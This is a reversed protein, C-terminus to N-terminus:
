CPNKKVIRDGNQWRPTCSNNTKHEVIDVIYLQKAGAAQEECSPRLVGLIPNPIPISIKAVEDIYQHGDSSEPMAELYLAQGGGHNLDKVTLTGTTGNVLSTSVNYNNPAYGASIRTKAAGPATATIVCQRRVDDWVFGIFAAGAVPTYTEATKSTKVTWGSSANPRTAVELRVGVKTATPLGTVTITGSKGTGDTVVQIQVNDKGSFSAGTVANYIDYRIQENLAGGDAPKSWNFTLNCDKSTPNYVSSVISVTPEPPDTYIFSSSTTNVQQVFENSCTVRFKYGTNKKVLSGSTDATLTVSKSEGKNFTKTSVVNNLHDILEVKWNWNVANPYSTPTGNINTNSAWNTISASINGSPTTPYTATLGTPASIKHNADLDVVCSTSNLISAFGNLSYDAKMTFNSQNSPTIKGSGSVNVTITRSGCPSWRPTSNRGKEEWTNRVPWYDYYIYGIAGGAGWTYNQYIGDFKANYGVYANRADATDHSFTTLDIYHNEEWHATGGCYGENGSSLCQKYAM